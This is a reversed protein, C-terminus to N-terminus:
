LALDNVKTQLLFNNEIRMNDIGFKSIRTLHQVRSSSEDFCLLTEVKPSGFVNQTVIFLAFRLKQMLALPSKLFRWPNKLRFSTDWIWKGQNRRFYTEHAKM